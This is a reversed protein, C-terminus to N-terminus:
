EAKKIFVVNLRPSVQYSTALSSTIQSIVHSYRINFTQNETSSADYPIIIAGSYMDRPATNTIDQVISPMSQQLPNFSSNGGIFSLSAVHAVNSPASLALIRDIVYGSILVLYAGPEPVTIPIDISWSTYRAPNSNAIDYDAIITRFTFPLGDNGGGLSNLVGEETLELNEGVTKIDALGDLKATDIDALKEDIETKTYYPGTQGVYGWKAETKNYQYYTSAGEHTEDQLVRAYDQDGMGTVKELEAYTDVIYRVDPSNVIEDIRNTLATDAAERAEVEANINAQLNDRDKERAMVELNINTQLNAVIADIVHKVYYPSAGRQYQWTGTGADYYYLSDAGNHNEDHLVEFIANAPYDAPNLAELAEYTDVIENPTIPEFLETLDANIGDMQEQIETIAEQSLGDFVKTYVGNSDYVYVTGNAGYIVIANYYDGPKPAYAGTDDGLNAPIYATRLTIKSPKCGCEGKDPVSILDQACVCPMKPLKHTPRPAGGCSLDPLFSNCYKM